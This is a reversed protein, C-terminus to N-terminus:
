PWKSYIVTMQFINRGNPLKTAIQYMEVRKPINHCSFDPLGQNAHTEHHVTGEVIQLKHPSACRSPIQRIENGKTLNFAGFIMNVAAGGGLNGSPKNVFWFDL